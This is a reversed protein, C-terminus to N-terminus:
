VYYYKSNATSKYPNKITWFKAEGKLTQPGTRGFVKFMGLAPGATRNAVYILRTTIYLKIVSTAIM